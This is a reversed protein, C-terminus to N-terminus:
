NVISKSLQSKLSNELIDFLTEMDKIPFTDIIDELIFICNSYDIMNEDSMWITFNSINKSLEIYDNGPKEYCKQFKMKFDKVLLMEQYILRIAKTINHEFISQNEPKNNKTFWEKTRSKMNDMNTHENLISNLFIQISEDM